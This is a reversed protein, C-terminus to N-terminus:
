GPSSVHPCLVHFLREKDYANANGIQIGIDVINSLDENVVVGEGLINPLVANNMLTAIQTVLM